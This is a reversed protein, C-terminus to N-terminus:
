SIVACRRSRTIPLLTWVLLVASLLTVGIRDIARNRRRATM